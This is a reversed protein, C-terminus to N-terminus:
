ASNAYSGVGSTALSLELRDDRKRQEAFRRSAENEAAEERAAEKSDANAAYPRVRESDHDVWEDTASDYGDLSVKMQTSGAHERHLLVRGPVWRDGRVDDEEPPRAWVKSGVEIPARKAAAPAPAPAPPLEPPDHRQRPSAFAAVARAATTVNNGAERWASQPNWIRGHDSAYQQAGQYDSLAKAESMAKAESLATAESMAKAAAEIRQREALEEAQRQAQEEAERQRQARAEVEAKAKAEADRKAKAEAEAAAMTRQAEAEAAAKIRTAEAMMKNAEAMMSQAKAEAEAAAKIKTAEAMMRQAEAMMSQTKAAEAMMKQAEAMISQAEAFTQQESRTSTRPESRAPSQPEWDPSRGWPDDGSLRRRPPVPPPTTAADPLTMSALPAPDPVPTRTPTPPKRPPPDPFRTPVVFKAQVEVIKEEKEERKARAQAEQRAQAQAVQIEREAAQREREAREQAERRIKEARAKQEVAQEERKAKEEAERRSERLLRSQEAASAERGPDANRLDGDGSMGVFSGPRNTSTAPSAKARGLATTTADPERKDAAAKEARVNARDKEDAQEHLSLARQRIADLSSQGGAGSSLEQLHEANGARRREEETLNNQFDPDTDWDDDDDAM